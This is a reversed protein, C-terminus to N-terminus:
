RGLLLEVTAGFSGIVMQCRLMQLVFHHTHRSRGALHLLKLHFETADSIRQATETTLYKARAHDTDPYLPASNRHGGQLSSFSWPAM